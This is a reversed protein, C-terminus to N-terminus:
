TPSWDFIYFCLLVLGDALVETLDEPDQGPAVWVRAQPVPDGSGLMSLRYRSSDLGFREFGRATGREGHRTLARAPFGAGLLLDRLLVVPARLEGCM